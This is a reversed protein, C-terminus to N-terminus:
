GSDPRREAELEASLEIMGRDVALDRATKDVFVPTGTGKLSLDSIRVQIDSCQRKALASNGALSNARM